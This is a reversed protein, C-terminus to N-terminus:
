MYENFPLCLYNCTNTGIYILIWFFSQLYILFCELIPGM